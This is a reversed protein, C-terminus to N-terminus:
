AEVTMQLTEWLTEWVRRRTDRQKPHWFLVRGRGSLYFGSQLIHPNLSQLKERDTRLALVTPVHELNWAFEEIFGSIEAPMDELENDTVILLASLHPYLHALTEPSIKERASLDYLLIAFGEDIECRYVEIDLVSQKELPLGSVLEELYEPLPCILATELIKM